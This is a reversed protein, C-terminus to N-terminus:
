LVIDNDNTNTNSLTAPKEKKIIPSQKKAKSIQINGHRKQYTMLGRYAVSNEELEGQELLVLAQQYYKEDASGLLYNINADQTLGDSVEQVNLDEVEKLIVSDAVLGMAMKSLSQKFLDNLAKSNVTDPLKGTKMLVKVDESIDINDIHEKMILRFIPSSSVAKLYAGYASSSKLTKLEESDKVSLTYGLNIM